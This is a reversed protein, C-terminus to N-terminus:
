RVITFTRRQPAQLANRSTGGAAEIQYRGPRLIRRLATSRLAMRFSEPRRLSRFVTTVVQRRSGRLRFLRIRLVRTRSDTWPAVRVSMVLGRRRVDSLRIRRRITVSAIRGNSRTTATTGAPGSPRGAAATVTPASAAPSPAPSPWLGPAVSPGPELPSTPKTSVQVWKAVSPVGNSNKIVLMYWGPPAWNANAPASVTLSGGTRSQIDLPVYRQDMDYGHTMAGPRIVAVSAISAADPTSISFTSGYGVNAPAAGIAPRAGKFLYSPSYVEGSQAYDLGVTQYAGGAALVRGDPLLVATSHYMRPTTMSAVTTWQKTAPNWIEGALV